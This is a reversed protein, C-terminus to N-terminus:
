VTSTGTSGGFSVGIGVGESFSHLFMVFVILLAKKADAGVLDGIHIDQLACHYQCTFLLACDDTVTLLICACAITLM